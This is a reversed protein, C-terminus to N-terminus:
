DCRVAACCLPGELQAAGNHCPWAFAVACSDLNHMSQRKESGKSYVAFRCMFLKDRCISMLVTQESGVNELQAVSTQVRNVRSITTLVESHLEITSICHSTVFELTCLFRISVCKLDGGMCEERNSAQTGMHVM